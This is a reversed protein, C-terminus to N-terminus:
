VKEAFMERIERGEYIRWRTTKKKRKGRTGARTSQSGESRSGSKDECRDNAAFIPRRIYSTSTSSM